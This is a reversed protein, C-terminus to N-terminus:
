IFKVISIRKKFKLFLEYLGIQIWNYVVTILRISIWITYLGAIITYLENLKTTDSLTYFIARGISVPVTLTVLSAFCLSACLLCIFAFIKISFNIKFLISIWILTTRKKSQSQLVCM